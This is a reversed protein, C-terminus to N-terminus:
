ASKRRTRILTKLHDTARISIEPEGFSGSKLVLVMDRGIARGAPVGAFASEELRRGHVTHVGQRTERGNKPFAVSV